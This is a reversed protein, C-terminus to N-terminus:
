RPDHGVRPPGRYRVPWVSATRACNCAWSAARLCGALHHDLGHSASFGYVARRDLQSFQDGTDPREMAYTFNSFLQLRYAIAYAALQTAQGDADRHWEGSLSHRQTSGGDSPDVADFRGFPRGQL